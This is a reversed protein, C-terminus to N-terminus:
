LIAVFKWINSYNDRYEILNYMSMVIDIDEANEVQTNNIESICNIFPACIKFIVKKNTNNGDADAAATNNVTITGTALIYADSFDCLSSKLMTTKFKIQSNVNHTERSEDNIEVWNKTKFKSSQSSLDDMLNTTKRYEM